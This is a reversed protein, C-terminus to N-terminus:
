KGDQVGGVPIEPSELNIGSTNASEISCRALSFGIDGSVDPKNKTRLVRTIQSSWRLKM